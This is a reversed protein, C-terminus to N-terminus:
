WDWQWSYAERLARQREINRGTASNTYVFHKGKASRRGGSLCSADVSKRDARIDKAAASISPYWKKTEICVCPNSNYSVARSKLKQILRDNGSGGKGGYGGGKSFNYGKKPNTTDYITIMKIEWEEAKEKSVGSMLIEHKINGWGYKKIDRYFEENSSYGSGGNWRRKPDQKTIGVYKKGNPVTHVYLSFNNM